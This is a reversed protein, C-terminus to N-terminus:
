EDDVGESVVTPDLALLTTPVPLTGDFLSVPEGVPEAIGYTNPEHAFWWAGDQAILLHYDGSYPTPAGSNATRSVIVAGDPPNKVDFEM